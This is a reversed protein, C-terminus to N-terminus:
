CAQLTSNRMSTYKSTGVLHECFIAQLKSISMNFVRRSKAVQSKIGQEGSVLVPRQSARAVPSAPLLVGGYRLVGFSGETAGAADGERNGAKSGHQPCAGGGRGAGTKSRFWFDAFGLSWWSQTHLSGVWQKNNIRKSLFVFLSPSSRLLVDRLSIMPFRVLLLEEIPGTRTQDQM